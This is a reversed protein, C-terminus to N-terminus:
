LRWRTLRGAGVFLLDGNALRFSTTQETGAAIRGQPVFKPQGISWTFVKHAVRVMCTTPSIMTVQKFSGATLYASVDICANNVSNCLQTSTANLSCTGYDPPTPPAVETPKGAIETEVHPAAYSARYWKNTPDSHYAFTTDELVIESMEINENFRRVERKGDIDYIAWRGRTNAGSPAEVWLYRTTPSLKALLYSDTQPLQLSYRPAGDPQTLDVLAVRGNPAAVALKTGDPSFGLRFGTPVNQRSADYEIDLYLVRGGLQSFGNFDINAWEPNEPRTDWLIIRTSRGPTGDSFDSATALTRGDPSVAFGLHPSYATHIEGLRACTDTRFVTMSRFAGSAPAAYTSEDRSFEGHQQYENYSGALVTCARNDRTDYLVNGRVCGGYGFAVYRGGASMEVFQDPVFQGSPGGPGGETFGIQTLRDLKFEPRTDSHDLYYRDPAALGAPSAEDPTPTAPTGDGPGALDLLGIRCVGSNQGAKVEWSTVKTGAGGIAVIGEPPASTVNDTILPGVSFDSLGLDNYFTDLTFNVLELIGVQRSDLDIAVRNNDLLAAQESYTYWGRVLEGTQGDYKVLTRDYGSVFFASGDSAWQVRYVHPGSSGMVDPVFGPYLRDGDGIHVFLDGTVYYDPLSALGVQYHFTGSQGKSCVTAYAHTELYLYPMVYLDDSSWVIDEAPIPRDAAWQLEAQVCGYPRVSSKTNVIGFATFTPVPPLTEDDDGGCGVVSAVALLAVRVRQM